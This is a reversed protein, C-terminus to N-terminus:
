QKYFKAIYLATNSKVQVLYLGQQLGAVELTFPSTSGPLYFTTLVKNGKLDIITIEVESTSLHLLKFNLTQSVPNPYVALTLLEKEAIGTVEPAPTTFAAGTLGNGATYYPAGVSIWTADIFVAEGYNDGEQANNAYYKETQIWDNGVRTFLYVSGSNLGFDDDNHAGVVLHRGALASSYGFFDEAEGDTPKIKTQEEWGDATYWFIYVSGSSNGNDDDMVAGVVVYENDIGVSRGFRDNANGDAPLLKAEQQWDGGVKSFIYASGSDSGLDDNLVGCVIVKEGDTDVSRGFKDDAAGDDPLIKGEEFWVGDVLAYIYAAGSFPGNEADSYAGVVMLEKELVIDVGFEDFGTGAHPLLKQKFVWSDGQLQYVFVAGSNIGQSDDGNAGIIAYNGDISVSVGFFDGDAGIEPGVKQKEVWVDNEYRFFYAAGTRGSKTTDDKAGAILWIETHSISYGFAASPQETSPEIQLQQANSASFNILIIVSILFKIGWWKGASISRLGLM